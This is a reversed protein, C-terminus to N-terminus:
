IPKPDSILQVSKKKGTVCYKKMIQGLVNLLSSGNIGALGTTL